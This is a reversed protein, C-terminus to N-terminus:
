PSWWTCGRRAQRTPRVPMRQRGGPWPRPPRRRGESCALLATLAVIVGVRRMADVGVRRDGAARAGDCVLLCTHLVSPSRTYITHLGGHPTGVCRWPLCTVKEPVMSTMASRVASGAGPASPRPCTPSWVPPRPSSQKSHPRIGVEGNHGVRGLPSSEGPEVLSGPVSVQRQRERRGVEMEFVWDM